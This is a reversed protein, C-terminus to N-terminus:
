KVTGVLKQTHKEYKLSLSINIFANKKIFMKQSKATKTDLQIKTIFSFEYKPM